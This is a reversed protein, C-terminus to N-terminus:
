GCVDGSSCGGGGGDDAGCGCVSLELLLALLVAGSSGCWGPVNPSWVAPLVAVGATPTMGMEEESRPGAADAAVMDIVAADDM